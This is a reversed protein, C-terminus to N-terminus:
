STIVTTQLEYRRNETIELFYRQQEKNLKSLGWDDLIVSIQMFLIVNSNNLYWIIEAHLM